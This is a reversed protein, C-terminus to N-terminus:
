NWCNGHQDAIHTWFRENKATNVDGFAYFGWGGSKAINCDWKSYTYNHEDMGQIYYGDGHSAMGWWDGFHSQCIRDAHEKNQIECGRYPKTIKIYGGTWGCYFEAPM